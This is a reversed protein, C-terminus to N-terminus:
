SNDHEDSKVEENLNVELKSGLSNELIDNTGFVSSLGFVSNLKFKCDNRIDNIEKKSKKLEVKLEKNEDTLSEIIKDRERIIKELDEIERTLTEITNDKEVIVRELSKNLKEAYECRDAMRGYESEIEEYTPKCIGVKELKESGDM